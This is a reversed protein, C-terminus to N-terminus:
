EVPVGALVKSIIGWKGDVRMFSLIDTFLTNMVRLKVKAVATNDGTFDISIIENYRPFKVEPSETKHSSVRTAFDDRKTDTLAGDATLGYIHAPDHFVELMLEGKHEYSANFYMQLLEEIKERDMKM